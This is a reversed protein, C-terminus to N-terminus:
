RRTADPLLPGKASDTVTESTSFLSVHFGRDDMSMEPSPEEGEMDRPRALPTPTAGGSRGWGESADTYASKGSTYSDGQSLDPRKVDLFSSATETQFHFISTNQTSIPYALQPSPVFTPSVPSRAAFQLRPSRPRTTDMDDEGGATRPRTRLRFKVPPLDRSDIAGVSSARSRGIAEELATKRRTTSSDSSSTTSNAMAASSMPFTASSASLPVDQTTRLRYASPGYAPAQFARKTMSRQHQKELFARAKTPSVDSSTSYSSDPPFGTSTGTSPATTPTPVPEPSVAVGIGSHFPIAHERTRTPFAVDRPLSPLPKSLDLSPPARHRYQAGHRSIVRDPVPFTQSPEPGIVVVGGRNVPPPQEIRLTRQPRDQQQGAWGFSSLQKPQSNNRAHLRRYAAQEWVRRAHFPDEVDFDGLGPPDPDSVMGIDRGESASRGPKAYDFSKVVGGPSPNVDFSSSKNEGRATSGRRSASGRRSSWRSGLSGARLRGARPDADTLSNNRSNERSRARVSGIIPAGPAASQHNFSMSRGRGNVYEAWEFKERRRAEGDEIVRLNRVSQDDPSEPPTIVHPTIHPRPLVFMDCLTPVAWRRAESLEDNLKVRRPKPMSVTRQRAPAEDRLDPAFSHGARIERSLPSFLVKPAALGTPVSSSSPLQASMLASEILSNHSPSRYLASHRPLLRQIGSAPNAAQARPFRYNKNIESPSNPSFVSLLNLTSQKVPAPSAGIGSHPPPLSPAAKYPIFWEDERPGRESDGSTRGRLRGLVSTNM